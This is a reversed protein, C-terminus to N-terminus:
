QREGYFILDWSTSKIPLLDLLKDLIVVLSFLIPKTDFWEGGFVLSGRFQKINNFGAKKLSERLEMPGFVHIHQEESKFGKEEETLTRTAGEINVKSIRKKLFLFPYKIINKNNPTTAIIFSNKTLLLALNKVVKEPDKLHELVESTIILDFKGVLRSNELDDYIFKCNKLNRRSAIENSYNVFSKSIDIGLFEVNPNKLILALRFLDGGDGSGIDLVRVKKQTKLKEQIVKLALNQIIRKTKSWSYAISYSPINLRDLL